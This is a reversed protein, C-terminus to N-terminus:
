DLDPDPGIAEVMSRFSLQLTVLDLDTATDIVEGLRARLQDMDATPLEALWARLIVLRIQSGALEAQMVPGATRYETAMQARIHGLDAEERGALRLILANIENRHDLADAPVVVGTKDIVLAPNHAKLITMIPTEPIGHAERVPETQYMGGLARHRSQARELPDLDPIASVATTVRQMEELARAPEKTFERAMADILWQRDSEPLATGAVFETFAVIDAAHAATFAGEATDVVVEDSRNGPEAGVSGPPFGPDVEIWTPRGLDFGNATAGGRPLPSTEAASPSTTPTIRAM